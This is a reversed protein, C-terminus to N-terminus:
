NVAVTMDTYFVADVRRWGIYTGAVWFGMGFGFLCISFFGISPADDPIRDDNDEVADLDTVFCGAGRSEVNLNSGSLLLFLSLSALFWGFFMYPKRRYGLVPLNDSMFGFLLKFSAPLSRIASISTQQAPTAGLDLPFVNVLPSSLGQLLGVLLYCMPVAINEPRLLQCSRPLHPPFLFDELQQKWDDSSEHGELTDSLPVKSSPAFHGNDDTDATLPQMELQIADPDRSVRETSHDEAIDLEDTVMKDVDHYQRHRISAPPDM